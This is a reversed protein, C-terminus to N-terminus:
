TESDEDFALHRDRVKVDELGDVLAAKIRDTKCDFLQALHRISLEQHCERQAFDAVFYLRHSRFRM